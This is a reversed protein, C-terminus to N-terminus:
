CCSGTNISTSRFLLLMPLYIVGQYIAMPKMV